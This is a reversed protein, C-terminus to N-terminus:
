ERSTEKTPKLIIFSILLPILNYFYHTYLTIIHIPYHFYFYFMCFTSFYSCSFLVTILFSYNRIITKLIQASYWIPIIFVLWIGFIGTDFFSQLALLFFLFFTSFELNKQVCHYAFGYYLCYLIKQQFFGTLCIDLFFLLLYISYIIM